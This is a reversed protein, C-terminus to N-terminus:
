KINMVEMDFMLVSNPPIRQGNGAAGYGLRSPIYVTVKMGKNMLMLMKDWGSIVSGTNVVVAYPENNGANDFNNAAAVSAMSTDFMQGNLLFGAYHVYATKGEPVLEGKGEKKVEYYIGDPTSKAVVGKEKLYNNIITSDKKIQGRENQISIKNHFVNVEEESWANVVGVNFTFLSQPDVNKPVPSKRTKFFVTNATLQFSVSDGVSLAKFVGYEGEDNVMSADPVGMVVPNGMTQSSFWVSDKSDKLQLNLVMYKGFPLEKGDGKKLVKYKVGGPTKEESCGMLLCSLLGVCYLISKM